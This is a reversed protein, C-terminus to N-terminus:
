TWTTWADMRRDQCSGAAALLPSGARLSQLPAAPRLRYAWPSRRPTSESSSWPRAGRRCPGPGPAAPLEGTDTVTEGAATPRPWPPSTPNHLDTAIVRGPYTREQHMRITGYMGNDVVLVVVELGHQVTALEQACMSAGDGAVAVVARRPHVVKAALAAPPRLGDGREQPSSPVTAGSSSSATCGSRTTAPGAPWLPTTPCASVCCPWPRALTPRGPRDPDGFPQAPRGPHPAGASPTRRRPPHAPPNPEAMLTPQAPSSWPRVLGRLQDPLRPGPAGPTERVPPVSRWAALFLGVAVNVALDPRYLRGLEALGPHVHVLRQRLVLAELLRYGGTTIEGLRPGVAVVLDAARVREALAPHHEGRPRRRLEDLPQRARGTLALLRGGAAPQGRGCSQPQRPRRAGAPVAPSSWCGGPRASCSACAPWPPWPSRSSLWASWTADAVPLPPVDEPLALVVPGAPGVHRGRVGQGPARAAPGPRRGRGGPWPGSCAPCTWSRPVGGTRVGPRGPRRAAPPGLGPGRHPRCEGPDGGTGQHGLSGRAARHLQRLGPWTPRELGRAPPHDAPRATASRTWCPWSARGLCASRPRSGTPGGCITLSSRAAAASACAASSLATGSGHPSNGSGSGGALEGCRSWGALGSGARGDSCRVWRGPRRCWAAPRTGFWSGAVNDLPAPHGRASDASRTLRTTPSTARSCVVRSDGEFALM